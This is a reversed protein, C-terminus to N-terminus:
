QIYKNKRFNKIAGFLLTFAGLLLAYDKPEPIAAGIIFTVDAYSYNKDFNVTALYSGNSEYFQWYHKQNHLVRGHESLFYFALSNDNSSNAIISTSGVVSNENWLQFYRDSGNENIRYGISFNRTYDVDALTLNLSTFELKPLVQIESFETGNYSVTSPQACLSLACLGLIPIIKQIM